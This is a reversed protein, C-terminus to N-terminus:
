RETSPLGHAAQLKGANVGIGILVRADGDGNREPGARVLNMQGGADVGAGGEAQEAALQGARQAKVEGATNVFSESCCVTAELRKAVLDFDAHEAHQSVGHDIEERVRHDPFVHQAPRAPQISDTKSQDIM